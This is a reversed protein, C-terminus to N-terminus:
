AKIDNWGAQSTISLIKAMKLCKFFVFLLHKSLMLIHFRLFIRRKTVVGLRLNCRRKLIM